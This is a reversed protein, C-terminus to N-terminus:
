TRAGPARLAPHAPFVLGTETSLNYRKHLRPSRFSSSTTVRCPSSVKTMNQRLLHTFIVLVVIPFSPTASPLLWWSPGPNLRFIPPFSCRRHQPRTLSTTRQQYALLTLWVRTGVPSEKLSVTASLFLPARFFAPVKLKPRLRFGQATFGARM